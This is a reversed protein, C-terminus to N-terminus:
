ACYIRDLVGMYFFIIGNLTGKFMGLMRCVVKPVHVFSSLSILAAELCVVTHGFLSFYIYYDELVNQSQVPVMAVIDKVLRKSNYPLWFEAEM